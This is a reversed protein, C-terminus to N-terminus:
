KKADPVAVVRVTFKCKGDTDKGDCDVTYSTIRGTSTRATGAPADPPAQVGGGAVTVKLKCKSNKDNQVTISVVPANAGAQYTYAARTGCNVEVEGDFLVTGDGDTALRQADAATRERVAGTPQTATARDSCPGTPSVPTAVASVSSSGAAHNVAVPQTSISAGGQPPDHRLPNSGGPTDSGAQTSIGTALLGVAVAAIVFTKGFKMTNEEKCASPEDM